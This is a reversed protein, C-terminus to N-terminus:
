INLKNKLKFEIYEQILNLNHTFFTQKLQPIINDFCIVGFRRKYLKLQMLNRYSTLFKNTTTYVLGNYDTVEILNMDDDYKFKVGYVLLPYFTKNLIKIIVDLLDGEYCSKISLTDDTEEVLYDDRLAINDYNNGVLNEILSINDDKLPYVTSIIYSGDKIERISLDKTFLINDTPNIEFESFKFNTIERVTKM